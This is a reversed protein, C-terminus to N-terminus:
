NTKGLLNNVCMAVFAPYSNIINDVHIINPVIGKLVQNIPWIEPFMLEMLRENAKNANERANWDYIKFINSETLTWSLLFYRDKNNKMKEIQNDAMTNIDTTNAYNDFLPFNYGTFIFDPKFNSIDQDSVYLIVKGKELIEKVPLNTLNVSNKFDKAKCLFNIGKLMDFLGEWEKKNFENYNYDTNCTHSLNIIILEQPHDATFRNLDKVMQVISIGNGGLRQNTKGIKDSYHGTLYKGGNGIVPRIDFYRVGCNLQEHISKSQTLIAKEPGLTKGNIVSMGADHSGLICIDKLTIGKEIKASIFKHMFHSSDFMQFVVFYEGLQLLTFEMLGNHKWGLDFTKKDKITKLNDLEIKIQLSNNPDQALVNIASVTNSLKYKALAYREGWYLWEVYVKKTEGPKIIEPFDWHSMNSKQEIRNWVHTTCNTLLVYGGQGYLDDNILYDNTHCELISSKDSIATKLSAEFSNLTEKSSNEDEIPISLYRKYKSDERKFGIRKGAHMYPPLKIFDKLISLLVAPITGMRSLVIDEQTSFPLHPIFDLFSEYRFLELSYNDSFIKDGVRPSGFTLIQIKMGPLEKAIIIGALTAMAGGKSHGTVYISGKFNNNNVLEKLKGIIKGKISEVSAMFGTHVSGKGYHFPIPIAILTNIWDLAKSETGRFAVIIGAEAFGILGANINGIGGTYSYVDDYFGAARYERSEKYKEPLGEPTIKLALFSASCTEKALKITPTEM